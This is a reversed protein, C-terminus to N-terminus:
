GTCSVVSVLALTGRINLILLSTRIHPMHNRSVNLLNSYCTKLSIIDGNLFTCCVDRCNCSQCLILCLVEITLELIDNKVANTLKFICTLRVTYAISEVVNPICLYSNSWSQSTKLNVLNLTCVETGCISIFIQSSITQILKKNITERPCTSGLSVSSVTERM